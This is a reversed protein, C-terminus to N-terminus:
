NADTEGSPTVDQIVQILKDTLKSIDFDQAASRANEGLRNYDRSPMHKIEVIKRAIAEPADDDLEFGCAYKSIISYGMKMTSLVPKGSALYEFLKNSSNGRDWNYLTSSYNLLNLDSRNLIYPIYKRSVNGKLRINDLAYSDIKEQLGAEESGSGFVLIQITEEPYTQKLEYAADVLREVNNVPRLAGTYTVTFVDKDIDTDSFRNEILSQDFTELDVGNNIYYVYDMDIKGGQEQTWKKETLYDPDGEKTFVLTDAREYIWREGRVLIRGLLSKSSLNSFYFIAEPWLDRIECICPVGYRKAIKIGAVLTLPHVSSALIVDPKGYTKEVKKTVPFLRRFFQFMNRIRGLKNGKYKSTKVFVFPINDKNNDKVIFKGKFDYAKQNEQYTNSTFVFPNYGKEKLFKAFWYHRGSENFYKGTAYHNM